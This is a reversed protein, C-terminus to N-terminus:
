FFAFKQRQVQARKTIQRHRDTVSIQSMVYRVTKVLCNYETKKSDVGGQSQLIISLWMGSTANCYSLSSLFLALSLCARSPTGM